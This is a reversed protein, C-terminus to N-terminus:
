DHIIWFKSVAREGVELAGAFLQAATRNRPRALMHDFDDVNGTVLHEDDWAALRQFSPQNPIKDPAEKLPFAAKSFLRNKFHQPTSIKNKM